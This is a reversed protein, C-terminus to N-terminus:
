VMGLRACPIGLPFKILSSIKVMGNYVLLIIFTVSSYQRLCLYLIDHNTVSPERFMGFLELHESDLSLSDWLRWMCITSSGGPPDGVMQRELICLACNRICLCYVLLEYNIFSRHVYDDDRQTIRTLPGIMLRSKWRDSINDWQLFNLM